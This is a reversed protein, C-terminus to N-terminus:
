FVSLGSVFCDHRGLYNSNGEVSAKPSKKKKKKLVPQTQVRAVIQLLLHGPCNEEADRTITTLDVCGLLFPRVAWM